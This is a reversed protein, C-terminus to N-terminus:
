VMNTSNTQPQKVIESGDCSSTEGDGHFFGDLCITGFNALITISFGHPEVADLGEDATGLKM